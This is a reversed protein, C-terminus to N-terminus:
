LCTKKGVEPSFLSQEYIRFNFIKNLFNTILFYQSCRCTLSTHPQSYGRPEQHGRTNHGPPQPLSGVGDERVLSQWVLLLVPLVRFESGRGQGGESRWEDKKRWGRIQSQKKQGHQIRVPSCLPGRGVAAIRTYVPTLPPFAGGKGGVCTCGGTYNREQPFRSALLRM